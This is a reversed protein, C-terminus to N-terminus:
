SGRRSRFGLIRRHLEGHNKPLVLAAIDKTTRDIKIGKYPHKFKGYVAGKSYGYIENAIKVGKRGLNVGEIANCELGNIFDENSPFTCQEQPIRLGKAQKQDLISCISKGKKVTNFFM